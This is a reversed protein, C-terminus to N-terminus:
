FSRGFGVEFAVYRLTVPNVVSAEILDRSLSRFRMGPTIRWREGLRFGVGIGAEWGLGHGSDSVFRGASDEMEIHNYTGGARLVLTRSLSRIPHEFRLGFAYGTEEVEMKNSAFPVNAKFRHWDWGGYTALHPLLRFGINAEFGGGAGLDLVGLRKTPKAVGPLIEIRWRDEEQAFIPTSITAIATLLILSMPVLRRIKM